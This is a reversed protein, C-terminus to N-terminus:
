RNLSNVGADMEKGEGWLMDISGDLHLISALRFLM